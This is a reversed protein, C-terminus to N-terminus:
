APQEQPREEDANGLGVPEVTLPMRSQNAISGVMGTGPFLDDLADGDQWGLCDLLWNCFAVPKGGLVHNTKRPMLGLRASAVLSDSVIMSKGIPKRGGFLIVPEWSYVPRIGPWASSWPKQWAMVRVKEPCLPLLRRLSNSKCSMAWGDPYEEVLREILAPHDVESARGGRASAERTYKSAMGEYPPDAYAFRM